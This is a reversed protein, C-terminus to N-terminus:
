KIGRFLRTLQNQAAALMSIVARAACRVRSRLCAAVHVSHLFAREDGPWWLSDLRLDLFAVLPLQRPRRRLWRRAHAHRMHMLAARAIDTVM